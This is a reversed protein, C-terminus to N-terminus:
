YVLKNKVLKIKNKALEDVIKDLPVRVMRVPGSEATFEIPEPFKKLRQFFLGYPLPGDYAQAVSDVLTTNNFQLLLSEFEKDNLRRVDKLDGVGVIAPRVYDRPNYDHARAIHHATRGSTYLLVPGRFGPDYSRTKVRYNGLRLKGDFLMENYPFQNPLASLWQQSTM